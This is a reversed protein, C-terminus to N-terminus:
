TPTHSTALKPIAGTSRGRPYLLCPRIAGRRGTRFGRDVSVSVRAAEDGVGDRVGSNSASHEKSSRDIALVFGDGIRRSVERAAAAPGCGIELVRMGQRLPLANICAALRPSLDQGM